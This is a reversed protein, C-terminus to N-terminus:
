MESKVEMGISSCRVNNRLGLLPEFVCLPRKEYLLPGISKAEPVSLTQHLYQSVWAMVWWGGLVSGGQLATKKAVASSSTAKLM